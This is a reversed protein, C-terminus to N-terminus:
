RIIGTNRMFFGPLYLHGALADPQTGGIFFRVTRVAPLETLTNVLAYVLLREAGEDMGQALSRLSQSFNVSMENDLLAVGLLDADRLTDPLVAQTGPQSDCPQPGLMLCNILYRASRTEYYPIPRRVAVLRGEGDGFYLTCNSLLFHAFDGRRMMGGDFNIAEGAGVYLGSPVVAGILEQGIYVTLGSVGPLFTCLTYTLSAMMLSRPVGAAILADNFGPAFRLAVRQGGSVTIEEVAPAQTLYASLDPLAPTNQLTQAGFTLADLLGRILAPKARGEFSVLRTEALIGKGSLAPFYLTAPLSFRRDAAASLTEAYASLTDISDNLNQTFSGAPAAAGVDLGPQVSNVLVNVYRIDGWQTLTNAIAQCVVYLEGHSLALASTALNVTATDGSVEVPNVSSLQLAAGASLPLAEESGPFALLRRVATEAPHRACSLMCKEEVAMLRTGAAGPVYLLVSSAYEQSSDGTPAAHTGQAPPLTVQAGGDLAEIGGMCGGLATLCALWLALLGASLGRKRM